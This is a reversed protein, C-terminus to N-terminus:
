LYERICDIKCERSCRFCYKYYDRLSLTFITCQINSLSLTLMMWYPNDQHHQSILNLYAIMMLYHPLKKKTEQKQPKKTFLDGFDDDSDFLNKKQKAPEIVDGFLDVQPQSPVKAAKEKAEKAAKENAEREVKEKAEKAAKEKAEREAKETAAKEMAEKEIKEKAEQEAKEQADRDAREKTERELIQQPNPPRPRKPIGGKKLAGLKGHWKAGGKKIPAKPLAKAAAPAQKPKTLFEQIESDDDLDFLSKGEQKENQDSEPHAEEEVETEDEEMQDAERAEQTEKEIAEQASEISETEARERADTEAKLKAERDSIEKAEREAKLKAEKEAKLKAEKEAKLKSEKDSREKAEREAKLKAEKEAKLKSEKDTREKAEREAKLKSEKDSREKAEREAKLKAEREAKLKAEKEAKLKPEKDVREKAAREKNTQELTQKNDRERIQGREEKIGEIAEKIQNQLQEELKKQLSETQEAIKQLVSSEFNALKEEFLVMKEDSQEQQTRLEDINHMKAEIKTNLEVLEKLQKERNSEREGLEKLQKQIREEFTTDYMKREVRVCKEVIDQLSEDKHINAVFWDTFIENQERDKKLEVKLNQTETEFKQAFNSIKELEQRLKTNEVKAETILGILNGDTGESIQIIKKEIELKEREQQLLNL